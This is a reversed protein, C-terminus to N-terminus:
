LPPLHVKRIFRNSALMEGTVFTLCRKRNNIYNNDPDYCDFLVYSKFADFDFHVTLILSLEAEMLKTSLYVKKLTDRGNNRARIRTHAHMRAYIYTMSM